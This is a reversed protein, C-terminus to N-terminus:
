YGTGKKQAEILGARAEELTNYSDFKVGSRAARVIAEAPTLRENNWSLPINTPRGNNIRGDRVTLDLVGATQVPKSIRGQPIYAGSRDYPGLRYPDPWVYRGDSDLVPVAGNNYAARYDYFNAPDDPDTSGGTKASQTKFWEQFADEKAQNKAFSTPPRVGAARTQDV